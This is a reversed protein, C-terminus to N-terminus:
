GELAAPHRRPHSGIGDSLRLSVHTRQFGFGAVLQLGDAGRRQGRGEELAPQAPLEDLVHMREVRLGAGHDALRERQAVHRGALVQIGYLHETVAGMRLALGDLFARRAGDEDDVALLVRAGGRGARDEHRPEHHSADRADHRVAAEAVRVLDGPQGNRGIVFTGRRRGIQRQVLGDVDIHRDAAAVRRNKWAVDHDPVGLAHDDNRRM